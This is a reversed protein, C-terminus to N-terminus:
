IHNLFSLKSFYIPFNAISHAEQFNLWFFSTASLFSGLEKARVILNRVNNCYFALKLM